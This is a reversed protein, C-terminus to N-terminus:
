LETTKIILLCRMAKMMDQEICDCRAAPSKGANVWPVAFFSVIVCLGVRVPLLAPLANLSEQSACANRNGHLTPECFGGM